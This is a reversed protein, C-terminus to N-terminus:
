KVRAHTHIFFVRFCRLWPVLWIGAGGAWQQASEAHLALPAALSAM